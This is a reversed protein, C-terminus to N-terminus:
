QFEEEILVPVLDGKKLVIGIFNQPIISHILSDSIYLYNM